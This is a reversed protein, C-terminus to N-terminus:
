MAFQAFRRQQIGGITTFEGGVAVRSHTASAAMGFVGHVGNAQPAWSSVWGSVTTATLKIRTWGGDLCVGNAGTRATACQKDFHGGWYVTDGLVAVAQADGDM